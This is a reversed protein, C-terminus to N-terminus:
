PRISPRAYRPRTATPNATETSSASEGTTVGKTANRLVSFEIGIDTGDSAANKGPNRPALTFDGDAYNVFMAPWSGSPYIGQPRPPYNTSGINAVMNRNWVAPGGPRLFRRINADSDVT